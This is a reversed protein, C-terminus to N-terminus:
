PLMRPLRSRMRKKPTGIGLHSQGWCGSADHFRGRDPMPDQVVRLELIEGEFNFRVFVALEDQTRVLGPVTVTLHPKTFKQAVVEVPRAAAGDLKGDFRPVADLHGVHHPEGVLLPCLNRVVGLYARHHRLKADLHEGLAVRLLLHLLFPREVEILSRLLDPGTPGLSREVEVVLVPYAGGRSEGRCKGVHDLLLQSDHLPVVAGDRLVAAEPPSVSSPDAPFEVDGRPEGVSVPERHGIHHNQCGRKAVVCVMSTESRAETVVVVPGTDLHM